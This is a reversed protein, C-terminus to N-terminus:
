RFLTKLFPIYSEAIMADTVLHGANYERIDVPIGAKGMRDAIFRTGRIIWGYGDRNGYALSVLKLKSPQAAYASLRADVSGFGKRWDVVIAADEDSGDLKPIRAYPPALTLDPAFAAGYANRYTSNWGPITDSVGNEDWAGPCCVWAGSFLDSRNLAIGWAGFGGMSYGALARGERTAVTRFRADVLAVAEEAVLDEWNGTAISNAYFSGGLSNGGEVSVIIVEPVEPAETAKTRLALIMSMAGDGFGHLAYVVPYRRNGSTKYSAPLSVFIEAEAKKELKGAAISPSEIRFKVLNNARKTKEIVRPGSPACSSAFVLTAIALIASILKKMGFIYGTEIEPFSGNKRLIRM